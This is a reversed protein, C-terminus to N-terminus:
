MSQSCPPGPAPHACRSLYAASNAPELALVRAFDREAAGWARLREHCLARNYHACAHGPSARIAM